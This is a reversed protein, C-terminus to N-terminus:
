KTVEIYKGSAYTEKVDVSPKLDDVWTYTCSDLQTCLSSNKEAVCGKCGGEKDDQLTLVFHRDKRFGPIIVRHGLLIKDMKLV